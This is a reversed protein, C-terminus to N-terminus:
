SKGLILDVVWCGRVHPRPGRCHELVEADRYGAEELAGALLPMCDFARNDYIADALNVVSPTRWAPDLTAPHFPNGFIDHIIEMQSAVAAPEFAPFAPASVTRAAVNGASYLASSRRAGLGAQDLEYAAEYAVDYAADLAAVTAQGEAYEEAIEVAQRSRVDSLL